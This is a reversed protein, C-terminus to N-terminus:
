HIWTDHSIAAMKCNYVQRSAIDFLKTFDYNMQRLLWFTPTESSGPHLLRHLNFRPHLRAFLHSYFLIHCNLGKIFNLYANFTSTNL